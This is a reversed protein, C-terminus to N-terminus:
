GLDRDEFLVLAMTLAVCLYVAAYSAAKALYAWPIGSTGGLVDAMWFVQWNPLLAYGATGLWSGSRAAAGFFPESLLGGIFLASCLVMSPLFALRASCALAIGSIVLIAQWILIGAPVLRWDLGAGFSQWRGDRDICNVAVFMATFLVVLALVADEHFPRQTIYNSVGAVIMSTAIVLVGSVVVVWDPSGHADFAMRSALLVALMAVHVHVLSAAAMGLFKSFLFGGRGVPKALLTLATGLRIESAMTASANLVATLLGSLLMLSLSTTKVLRAEEGFGFYSVNALLYMLAITGTLVVLYTPQRLLERFSNWAIMLYPRM